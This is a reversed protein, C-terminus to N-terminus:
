VIEVQHENSTKQIEVNIDTKSLSFDCTRKVYRNKKVTEPKFKQSM